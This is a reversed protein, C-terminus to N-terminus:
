RTEAFVKGDFKCPMSDGVALWRDVADHSHFVRKEKTKTSSTISGHGDMMAVGFDRSPIGMTVNTHGQKRRHHGTKKITALVKRTLITKEKELPSSM